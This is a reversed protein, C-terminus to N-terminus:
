PNYEASLSDILHNAKDNQLSVYYYFAQDLVNKIDMIGAYDKYLLYQEYICKLETTDYAVGAWQQIRKLFEFEFEATPEIMTGEGYDNWTILQLYDVAEDSAQQLTNTLTVGDLHDIEFPLNSGWGGEMYYDDFGPWAGGIFVDFLSARAYKNDLSADDVWIYEGVGPPKTQSSTYSLSLFTVNNGLVSMIEQWDSSTKFEEPGFVLLLPKGNVKIYSSKLFYQTRLYNMDDQALAIRDLDGDQAINATVTRDEYVIAFKLGVADLADILAEANERNDKYDNIDTSGYWDILVGDIGAYKMLLLHYRIVYPDSSAYPGILPYFHSAIQRKGDVIIDPNCTNMTWHLGWQSNSSTEKTEFWPMYHMFVDMDVTKAVAVPPFTKVAPEEKPTNDDKDCSYLLVGLMLIIMSKFCLKM